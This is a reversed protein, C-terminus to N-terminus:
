SSRTTSGRHNSQQDPRLVPPASPRPQRHSPLRALGGSSSRFFVPRKGDSCLSKDARPLNPRQGQLNSDLPYAINVCNYDNIFLYGSNDSYFRIEGVFTQILKVGEEEDTVDKLLASLGTATCHVLTAAIQKRCQLSFSEASFNTQSSLSLVSVFFLVLCVSIRFINKNM